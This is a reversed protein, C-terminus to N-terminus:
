APAAPGDAGLGFRAGLRTGEEVVRQGRALADPQLRVRAARSRSQGPVTRGRM